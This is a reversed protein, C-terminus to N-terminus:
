TTGFPLPWDKGLRVDARQAGRGWCVCRKKGQVAGPEERNGWKLLDQGEDRRVGHLCKDKLFVREKQSM